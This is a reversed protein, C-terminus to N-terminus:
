GQVAGPTCSVRVSALYSIMSDRVEFVSQFSFIVALSNICNIQLRGTNYIFRKSRGPVRFLYRPLGNGQWFWLEGASLRIGLTLYSPLCPQGLGSQVQQPEQPGMWGSVGAPGGLFSGVWRGQSLGCRGPKKKVAQTIPMLLM